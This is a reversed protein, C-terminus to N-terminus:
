VLLLGMAADKALLTAPLFPVTFVVWVCLGEASNAVFLVTLMAPLSKLGHSVEDGSSTVFLDAALVSFFM